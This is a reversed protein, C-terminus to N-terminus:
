LKLTSCIQRAMEAVERLQADTIGNQAVYNRLLQEPNRGQMLGVFQRLQAIPLGLPSGGGPLGASSAPASRTLMNLIPNAM